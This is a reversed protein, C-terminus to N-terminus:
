REITPLHLSQRVLDGISRCMEPVSLGTTDLEIVPGLRAAQRRLAAQWRQYFEASELVRRETPKLGIQELLRKRIRATAEAYTATLLLILAPRCLYPEFPSAIRAVEEEGLASEAILLSLPSPLYRDCIASGHALQARVLDALHLTAGLYYLLRPLPAVSVDLNVARRFQTFEVPYHFLAAGLCSCLDRAATSKGVGHCGELVLFASM